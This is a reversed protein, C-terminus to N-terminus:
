EKGPVIEFPRGQGDKLATFALQGDACLVAVAFGTRLLHIFAQEEEFRMWTVGPELRHDREQIRRVAEDTDLVVAGPPLFVQGASEPQGM